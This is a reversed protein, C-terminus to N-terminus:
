ESSTAALQVYGSWAGMEKTGTWLNTRVKVTAATANMGVLMLSLLWLTILKKM